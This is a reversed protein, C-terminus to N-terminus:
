IITQEVDTLNLLTYTFSNGYLEASKGVIDMLKDFDWPNALVQCAASWKNNITSEMKHDNTRHINSKINDEIINDPNEMLAFDLYSDKNNDRVYKMPAKQELARYGKHLGDKYAGLYQGPIMIATGEERMPNELWYLGPDTTAKYQDVKWFGQETQYFTGVTDDFAGAKQVNSRIGFLNINYTGTFSKYGKSDFTAILEEASFKRM